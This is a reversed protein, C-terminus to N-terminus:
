FVRFPYKNCSDVILGIEKNTKGVLLKKCFKTIGKHGKTITKELNEKENNYNMTTFYSWQALEITSIIEDIESFVHLFLQHKGFLKKYKLNDYNENLKSLSKEIVSDFFESIPETGYSLSAHYKPNKFTGTKRIYEREVWYQLSKRFLTTSYKTGKSTTMKNKIKTYTDANLLAFNFETIPIINNM